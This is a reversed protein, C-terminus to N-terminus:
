CSRAPRGSSRVCSPSSRASSVPSGASSRAARGRDDKTRPESPRRRRAVDRDTPKAPRSTTTPVDDDMTPTTARADDDREDDDAITRPRRRRRRERTTATAEDSTPWTARRRTTAATRSRGSDGEDRRSGGRRAVSASRVGGHGASEGSRDPRPAPTVPSSGAVQPKPSRQAALQAVGRQPSRDGGWRPVCACRCPDSVGRRVLTRTAAAIEWGPGWARPRDPTSRVTARAQALVKEGGCTATLDLQAPRGRDVEPGRRRGRGRHGRRRRAGRVPRTFRVGFEVVADPDGAWTTVARGALAMTFMGHAIVGPCARRPPSGTAGTSRTSTARPAPTASWTPGPSGSRRRSPLQQRSM